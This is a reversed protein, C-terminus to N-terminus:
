IAPSVINFDVDPHIGWFSQFEEATLEGEDYALTDASVMLAEYVNAVKLEPWTSDYLVTTM